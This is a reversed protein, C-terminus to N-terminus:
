TLALKEKVQESGHTSAPVLRPMPRVKSLLGQALARLVRGAHGPPKGSRATEIRVIRIVNRIAVPLSFHKRLFQALSKYYLITASPSFEGDSSSGSKHLIHPHKVYRIPYGSGQLRLCLDADEFYVFFTEDLLGVRELVTKTFGLCCGSAYEVIKSEVRESYPDHRPSFIYGYDFHGGAYYASSPDDAYMVRPAIVPASSETWADDLEQLFTLDFITDPNLLLFRDCGQNYGQRLGQNVARAFGVNDKNRIVAIRSDEAYELYDAAESAKGAPNNIAILRFEAHTQHALNEWFSHIDAESKYLVVIIALM